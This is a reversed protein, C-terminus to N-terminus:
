YYTNWGKKIGPYHRDPINTHILSIRGGGRAEDFTLVLMSDLETKPWDAGRWTQVILHGPVIALNRGVLAGQFATFKGGVRRSVSAKAGTAASHKRSDLYLDFLEEPSAALHVQQRITKAM